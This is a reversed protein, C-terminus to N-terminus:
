WHLSSPFMNNTSVYKFRTKRCQVSCFKLVEYHVQRYSIIINRSLAKGFHVAAILTVKIYATNRLTWSGKEKSM